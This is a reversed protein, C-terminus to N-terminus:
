GNKLVEFCGLRVFMGDIMPHNFVGDCPTPCDVNKLLDLDWSSHVFKVSGIVDDKHSLNDFLILRRACIRRWHDDHKSKM